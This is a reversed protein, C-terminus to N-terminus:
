SRGRRALYASVMQDYPTDTRTLQYAIDREHCARRIRDLFAGLRELYKARVMAPNTSLTQASEADEFVVSKSYPFTLEAEDMVHFVTVDHGAHRLHALGRVTADVDDILDSIVIVIGRRKLRLAAEDLCKGVGSARSPRLAALTEVFVRFHTPTSRAPLYHHISGDFAALGVSDSQRLMLYAMAAATSCAFDFKTTQGSTFAMSESTDVVILCRTNTQEEFLKVYYRDTKALLKYDISRPEDNITYPRYDAYEVSSGYKPSPHKGSLLGEVARRAIFELRRLRSLDAPDIVRLSM